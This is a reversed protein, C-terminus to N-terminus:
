VSRDLEWASLAPEIGTVRERDGAGTVREGTHLDLDPRCDSGPGRDNQHLLQDKMGNARRSLAAVSRKAAGPRACSPRAASPAPGPGGRRADAPSSLDVDRGETSGPEVSTWMLSGACSRGTLGATSSATSSARRPTM